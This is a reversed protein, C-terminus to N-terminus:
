LRNARDAFPLPFCVTSANNKSSVIREPESRSSAGVLDVQRLTYMYMDLICALDPMDQGVRHRGRPHRDIKALPTREDSRVQAEFPATERSGVGSEQIRPLGAAFCNHSPRWASRRPRGLRHQAFFCLRSPPLRHSSKKKEEKRQTAQHNNIGTSREARCLHSHYFRPRAFAM